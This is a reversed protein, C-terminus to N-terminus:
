GGYTAAEVSNARRQESKALYACCSPLVGPLRSQTAARPGIRRTFCVAPFRAGFPRFLKAWRKLTQALVGNEDGGTSHFSRFHFGAPTATCNAWSPASRLGPYSPFFLDLGTPVAPCERLSKLTSYLPFYDRSPHPRYLEGRRVPSQGSVVALQSGTVSSHDVGRGGGNAFYQFCFAPGFFTRM